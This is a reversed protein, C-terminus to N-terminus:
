NRLLQAACDESFPLVGDLWCWSAGALLALAPASRGPHHGRQIGTRNLGLGEAALAAAIEDISYGQARLAIIRARAADKGPATKSGPRADLFFTKAGARFDAVASNLGATTYGFRAAM